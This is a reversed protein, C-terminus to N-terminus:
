IIGLFKIEWVVENMKGFQKDIRKLLFQIHIVKKTGEKFTDVTKNQKSKIEQEYVLEGQYTDNAIKNLKKQVKMNERWLELEYFPKELLAQLLEESNCFIQSKKAMKEQNKLLWTCSLKADEDFNSLITKLATERLELNYKQSGVIAVYDLLDQFKLVAQDEYVSLNTRNLSTSKLDALANDPLAVSQGFTFKMLLLFIVIVIGITKNM